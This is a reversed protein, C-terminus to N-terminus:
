TLRRWVKILIFIPLMGSFLLLLSRLPANNIMNFPKLLSSFFGSFGEAFATSDFVKFISYSVWNISNQLICVLDFGECIKQEFINFNFGDSTVEPLDYDYLFVQNEALISLEYIRLKSQSWKNIVQEGQQQISISLDSVNTLNKFNYSCIHSDYNNYNENNLYRDLLKINLLETSINHSETYIKLGIDLYHNFPYDPLNLAQSEMLMSVNGLTVNLGLKFRIDFRLKFDHTNAGTNEYDNWSTFEVFQNIDNYNRNFLIKKIRNKESLTLDYFYQDKVENYLWEKDFIYTSQQQQYNERISVRLHGSPAGQLDWIIDFDINDGFWSIISKQYDLNNLENKQEEFIGNILPLQEHWNIYDNIFPDNSELAKVKIFLSSSFIFIFTIVSLFIRKYKTM